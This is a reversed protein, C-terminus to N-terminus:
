APTSLRRDKINSNHSFGKEYRGETQASSTLKRALTPLEGENWKEILLCRFSEGMVAFNIATAKTGGYESDVFV